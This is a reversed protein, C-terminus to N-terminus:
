IKNLILIIVGNLNNKKDDKFIKQEVTFGNKTFYIELEEYSFGLWLDAYKLRMEENNHSLLDIFVIKGNKKLIRGIEKIARNPDSIHHMVMNIFVCDFLSDSFPLTYV